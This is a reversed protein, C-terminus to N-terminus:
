MTVIELFLKKILKEKDPLYSNVRTMIRVRLSDKTNQSLLEKFRDENYVHIERHIIDKVQGLRKQLEELTKAEAVFTVDVILNRIRGNEDYMTHTIDELIFEEFYETDIGTDQERQEKREPPEEGLFGRLPGHFVLFYAVVLMVGLIIIKKIPKGKGKAKKPKSVEEDMGEHELEDEM